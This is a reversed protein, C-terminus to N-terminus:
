IEFVEQIIPEHYKAKAVLVRLNDLLRVDGGIHIHGCLVTVLCDPYQPVLELLVDGVAKCTFHPIRVSTAPVVEGEWICARRFPVPHMALFVQQYDKLISPLYERFHAASEQALAQLHPLREQPSLHTLEEIQRYDRLMLDSNAYDGYQGDSWGDHGILATTPNLQVIGSENLWHIESHAAHFQQMESRVIAVSSGYYDHNGLVFYIPIKLVTYMQDLYGIVSDSEGIDGSIVVADVSQAQVLHLFETRQKEELFDLHIDSMWAFRM